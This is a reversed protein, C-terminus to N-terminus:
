NVHLSTSCLKNRICYWRTGICSENCPHGECTEDNRTNEFPQNVVYIEPVATRSRNTLLVKASTNFSRDVTLMLNDIYELCEGKSQQYRLLCDQNIGCIEQESIMYSERWFKETKMFAPVTAKDKLVQSGDFELRKNGFGFPLASSMRLWKHTWALLNYHSELLIECKCLESDSM